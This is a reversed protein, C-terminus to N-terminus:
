VPEAPSHEASQPGDGDGIFIPTVGLLLKLLSCSKEAEFYNIANRVGGTTKHNSWMLSVSQTKVAGVLVHEEM